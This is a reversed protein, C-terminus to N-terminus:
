LRLLGSSIVSPKYGLTELTNVFEEDTLEFVVKIDIPKYLLSKLSDSTIAGSITDVIRLEKTYTLANEVILLDKDKLYQLSVLDTFAFHWKQSAKVYQPESPIKGFVKSVEVLGLATLYIFYLSADNADTDDDMAHKIVATQESVTSGVLPLVVDAAIQLDACLQVLRVLVDENENEHLVERVLLLNDRAFILLNNLKSNSKEQTLKTVFLLIPSKNMSWNGAPILLVDSLTFGTLTILQIIYLEFQELTLNSQSLTNTFVNLLGTPDSAFFVKLIAIKNANTLDDLHIDGVLRQEITGEDTIKLANAYLTAFTEDEFFNNIDFSSVGYSVRSNEVVVNNLNAIIHNVIALKSLTIATPSDKKDVAVLSNIKVFKNDFNNYLVNLVSTATDNRRLLSKNSLVGVDVSFLSLRGTLDDSRLVEPYVAALDNAAASKENDSGLESVMSRGYAIVEAASFGFKDAIKIIVWLLSNSGSNRNLTAVVSYSFVNPYQSTDTSPQLLKGATTVMSIFAEVTNISYKTKLGRSLSNDLFMNSYLLESSLFGATFFHDINANLVSKNFLTIVASSRADDQVQSGNEQTNIRTKLFMLNTADNSALYIKQTGDIISITQANPEPTTMAAFMDSLKTFSSVIVINGSVESNYVPKTSNYLDSYVDTRSKYYTQPINKMINVPSYSDIIRPDTEAAIAVCEMLMKVGFASIMGQVYTATYLPNTILLQVCILKSTADSSSDGM